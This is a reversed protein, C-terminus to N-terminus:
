EEEKTSDDTVDILYDNRAILCDNLYMNSRVATSCVFVLGGMIYYSQYSLVLLFLFHLCDWQSAEDDSCAAQEHVGKKNVCYGALSSVLYEVAEVQHAHWHSFTHRDGVMDEVVHGGM